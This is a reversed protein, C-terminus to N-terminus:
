RHLDPRFMQTQIGGTPSSPLNELSIYSINAVRQSGSTTGSGVIKLPWLKKGKGDLKPLITGNVTDAIIWTDNRKLTASALKVSFGDSATVNVTYGLDALADNFAAPDNDDVRALIRWLAIGSWPSSGDNYTLRNDAALSEFNVRTLQESGAGTLSISWEDIVTVPNVTIYGTKVESDSGAGNTVTLNM